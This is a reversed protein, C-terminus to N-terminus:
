RGSTASTRLDLYAGPGILTAGAVLGILANDTILGVAFALIVAATAGASARSLQTIDMGGVTPRPEM